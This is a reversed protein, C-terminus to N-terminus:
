FLMLIQWILRYVMALVRGTLGILLFALIPSFDLPLRRTFEFRYLLNRCPGLIPESVNYIFRTFGNNFDPVFSLICRVLIVLELADLLITLVQYVSTLINGLIM